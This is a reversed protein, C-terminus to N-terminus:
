LPAPLCCLQSGGTEVLHGGADWVKGTVGLWGQRRVRVAGDILLWDTSAEVPHFSANIDLSPAIFPGGGHTHWFTPWGPTDLLILSRAADVFPDDFRARPRFRLWQRM